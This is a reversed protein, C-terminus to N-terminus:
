RTVSAGPSSPTGSSAPVVGTTARTRGLLALLRDIDLPKCLFHMNTIDIRDLQARGMPFASTLVIPLDPYREAVRRALSVGDVGPMMMDTVVVDCPTAELAELADNGRPLPIVEFGALELIRTLTFRENDEDEVLLVRAM